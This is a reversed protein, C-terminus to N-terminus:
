ECIRRLKEAREHFHALEWEKRSKRAEEIRAEEEPSYDFPLIQDAAALLRAIEEPSNPEDTELEQAQDLTTIVLKTGEPLDWQEDPEIRGNRVTASMTSM